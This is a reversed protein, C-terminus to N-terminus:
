GPTVSFDDFSFMSNDGRLGVMGSAIVPGGVGADVAQCVVVGDVVLTIRVSGDAQTAISANVQQWVGQVFPNKGSALTYYTGGNSSGGPVKKKIQTTGDRRDVSAYYLSEESAYRLFVHVGDWAVAPTSPTTSFGEHRLRLSVSVNTLDSRRTLLRFIASDTGNSSTANPAIDDVRGTWGAGSRAFLSGSNLWWTSDVVRDPATPNWYAYENTILGDARTFSDTLLPTAGTSGGPQTTTTTSPASTTTTSSTTSSTSTTSTTSTTTTTTNSGGGHRWRWGTLITLSLGLVLLSMLLATASRRVGSTPRFPSPVRIPKM